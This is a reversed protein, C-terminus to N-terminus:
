YYYMLLSLKSAQTLSSDLLIETSIYDNATNYWANYICVCQWIRESLEERMIENVSNNTVIIRVNRTTECWQMEANFVCQNEISTNSVSKNVIWKQIYSGCTNNGFTQKSSLTNLLVLRMQGQFRLVQEPALAIM